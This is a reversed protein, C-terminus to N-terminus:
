TRVAPGNDTGACRRAGGAFFVDGNSSRRLYRHDGHAPSGSARHAALGTGGGRRSRAQRLERAMAAIRDTEKVRWSGINRLMTAGRAFLAVVAATMAADPILKCDLDIGRLRRARAHRSGTTAAASGRAWRRSCTPSPSTARSAQGGSAKSEFRGASIAGAALFYSASSADGEVAIRGPSRYSAGGAVRFRKWGDRDVDVGFRKMLNITIDVYPRSVLDGEVEVSVERRLLPLAQLLGTLFQSSVDGRIRVRDAAGARATGVCLPPYGERHEYGINAGLACLADVLDGIPRERMRPAGDVRYNGGCFALAAVLTRMSLGSMRLSLEARRKPFPGASGPVRYAGVGDRSWAVGLARLAALMAETDDSELLSDLVTEGEALAALLLVRNAISKSGPMRVCGALRAVPALDLYAPPESMAM